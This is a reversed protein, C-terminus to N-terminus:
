MKPIYQIGLKKARDLNRHQITKQEDAKQETIEGPKQQWLPKATPNWTRTLDWKEKSEIVEPDYYVEEPEIGKAYDGTDWRRNNNADVITVEVDTDYLHQASLMENNVKDRWPGGVCQSVGIKYRYSNGTSCGLQLFALLM